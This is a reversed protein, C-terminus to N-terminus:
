LYSEADELSSVLGDFDEDPGLLEALVFVANPSINYDEALNKLYEKRDKYGEEVYISGDIKWEPERDVEYVKVEVGCVCVYFNYQAMTGYNVNEEDLDM